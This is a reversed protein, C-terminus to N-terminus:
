TAVAEETTVLSLSAPMLSMNVTLDMTDMSVTVPTPCALTTVHEVMRVCGLFQPALM